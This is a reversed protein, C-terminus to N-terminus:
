QSYPESIILRHGLSHGAALASHGTALTAGPCAKSEQYIPLGDPTMIRRAGWARVVRVTELFPFCAAARRAIEGMVPVTTGDDLGVYEHCDGM